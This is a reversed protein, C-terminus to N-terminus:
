TPLNPLLKQKELLEYETRRQKNARTYPGFIKHDPIWNLKALQCGVYYIWRYRIFLLRGFSIFHMCFRSLKFCLSLNLSVSATMMLKSQSFRTNRRQIRHASWSSCAHSVNEAQRDCAMCAESPRRFFIPRKMRQIDTTQLKFGWFLLIRCGNESKIKSVISFSALVGRKIWIWIKSCRKM